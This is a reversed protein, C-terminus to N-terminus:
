HQPIYGPRKMSRPERRRHELELLDHLERLAHLDHPPEGNALDATACALLTKVAQLMNLLSFETLMGLLDATTVDQVLVLDGVQVMLM